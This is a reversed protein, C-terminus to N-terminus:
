TIINGKEDIWLETPGKILKARGNEFNSANDYIPEIIFEGQRNIAGWKGEICALVINGDKFVFWGDPTHINDCKLDIAEKGDKNIFRYKGGHVRVATIGDYFQFANRFQPEIEWEGKTDIYGWLRPIGARALGDSFSSIHTFQPEKIFNGQKDILGWKWNIHIRAVDGEFENAEDFSAQIQAADQRGSIIILKM